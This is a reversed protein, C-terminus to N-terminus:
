VVRVPHSTGPHLQRIQPHVNPRMQTPTYTCAHTM